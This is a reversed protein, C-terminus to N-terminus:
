KMGMTKKTKIPNIEPTTVPNFEEDFEMHMYGRQIFGTELKKIIMNEVEPLDKIKANSLEYWLDDADMDVTPKHAIFNGAKQCYELADVGL